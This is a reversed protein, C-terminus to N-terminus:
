NILEKHSLPISQYDIFIPTAVSNTCIQLQIGSINSLDSYMFFLLDLSFKITVQNDSKKGAISLMVLVTSLISFRRGRGAYYTMIRHCRKTLFRANAWDVTMAHLILRFNGAMVKMFIFRAILPILPTTYLAEHMVSNWDTVTYVVTYTQVVASLMFFGILLFITGCQLDYLFGRDQPWFGLLRMGSRTISIAHDFSKEEDDSKSSKSRIIRIM